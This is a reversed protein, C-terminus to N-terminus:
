RRAYSVSAFGALAFAVAGVIVFLMANSSSSALGADGTSPPRISGTGTQPSPVSPAQAQPAAPLNCTVTVQAATVPTSFAGSLSGGASVVVEYAGVHGTSTLLFATAVGNFTEAAASSVPNTPGTGPFGLTGGTGGLVGGFNTILEVRTHDSVRQGISDTINATITAKEGCVLSGPAANVTIFAPPGIVTVQVTATVDPGPEDVTARVTAVGPTVTNPNECHLVAAAITRLGAPGPPDNTFTISTATATLGGHSELADEIAASTAPDFSVRAAFLPALALYEAETLGDIVCKDTSWDVEFGPFSQDTDDNPDSDTVTLVLLSHSVNGLAPVIEVTTPSATLTAADPEGLCIVEIQATGGNDLSWSLDFTGAEECTVDIIVEGDVLADIDDLIDDFGTETGSGTWNFNEDGADGRDDAVNGECFDEVFDAFQFAVFENVNGDVLEDNVDQAIQDCSDGALLGAVVVAAAMDFAASPIVECPAALFDTNCDIDADNFSLNEDDNGDNDDAPTPDACESGSFEITEAVCGEGDEAAAVLIARVAARAAALEDENDAGCVDGNEFPEVDGLFDTDPIDDTDGDGDFDHSTIDSDGEKDDLDIDVGDDIFEFDLFDEIIATIDVTDGVQIVLQGNDEDLLNGEEGEAFVACIDGPAASATPVTRSTGMAGLFVLLALAFATPWM